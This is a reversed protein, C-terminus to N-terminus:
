KKKKGEKKRREAAREKDARERELYEFVQAKADTICHTVTESACTRAFESEADAIMQSLIRTPVYMGADQSRNHIYRILPMTPNSRAHVVRPDEQHTDFQQSLSELFMTFEQEGPIQQNPFTKTMALRLKNIGRGLSSTMRAEEGGLSLIHLMVLVQFQLGTLKMEQKAGDIDVMVTVAHNLFTHQMESDGNATDALPVDHAPTEDAPEQVAPEPTPAPAVEVERVVAFMKRKQQLQPYETILGVLPSQRLARIFATALTPSWEASTIEVFTNSLFKKRRTLESCVVRDGDSEEYLGGEVGLMEAIEQATHDPWLTELASIKATLRAKAGERSILHVDIANAHTMVSEKADDCLKWLNVLKGLITNCRDRIATQESEDKSGYEGIVVMIPRPKSTLEELDDTLTQIQHMPGGDANLTSTFVHSKAVLKSIAEVDPRAASSDEKMTDVLERMLQLHQVSEHADAFSPPEPVLTDEVHEGILAQGLRVTLIDELPVVPVPAQEVIPEEPAPPPEPTGPPVDVPAPSVVVPPPEVPVPTQDKPAEPALVPFKGLPINPNSSVFGVLRHNIYDAFQPHTGGEEMAQVFVRECTELIKILRSDKWCQEGGYVRASILALMQRPRELDLHTRTVVRNYADVLIAREAVTMVIRELLAEVDKKKELAVEAYGAAFIADKLEQMRTCQEEYTVANLIGLMAAHAMRLEAPFRTDTVTQGVELKSPEIELSTRAATKKDLSPRPPPVKDPLPPLVPAPVGVPQVTVVPAPAAPAPVPEQTPEFYERLFMTRQRIHGMWSPTGTKGSTRWIKLESVMVNMMNHLPHRFKKPTSPHLRALIAQLLRDFKSEGFPAFGVAQEMLEAEIIKVEVAAWVFASLNYPAEVKQIQLVNYLGDIIAEVTDRLDGYTKQALVDPIEALVLSMGIDWADTEPPADPVVTPAALKTPQLVPKPTNVLRPPSKAPITAKPIPRNGVKLGFATTQSFMLNAARKDTLQRVIGMPLDISGREQLIQMFDIIWPLRSLDIAAGHELDQTRMEKTVMAHLANRHKEDLLKRGLMQMRCAREILGYELLSWVIAEVEINSKEPYAGQRVATCTERFKGLMDALKIAGFILRARGQVITTAIRFQERDTEARLLDGLDVAVDLDSSQVPQEVSSEPAPPRPWLADLEMVRARILVRRDIRISKDNLQSNRLRIYERVIRDFSSKVFEGHENGRHLIGGIHDYAKQMQKSTLPLANHIAHDCFARLMEYELAAWVVLEVNIGQEGKDIVGKIIKWKMHDVALLCADFDKITINKQVESIARGIVEDWRQEEAGVNISDATVVRMADVSPSTISPESATKQEAQWLAIEGRVFEVARVKKGGYVHTNVEGVMRKCFDKNFSGQREHHRTCAEQIMAREKARTDNTIEPWDPITSPKVDTSAPVPVDVIAESVNPEGVAAAESVSVNASPAMEADILPPLQPATEVVPVDRQTSDDVVVNISGELIVADGESETVDINSQVIESREIGSLIGLVENEDVPADIRNNTVIWKFFAEDSDIEALQGELVDVIWTQVMPQVNAPIGILSTGTVADRIVAFVNSRNLPVAIANKAEGIRAHLNNGVATLATVFDKAVDGHVPVCDRRVVSLFDRFCAMVEAQFEAVIIEPQKDQEYETADWLAQSISTFSRDVSDGNSGSGTHGEKGNGDVRATEVSGLNQTEADPRFAEIPVAHRGREKRGAKVSKREAPTDRAFAVNVNKELTDLPISIAKQLDDLIHLRIESRADRLMRKVKRLVDESENQTLPDNLKKNLFDPVDVRVIQLTRELRRKVDTPLKRNLVFPMVNDVKVLIDQRYLELIRARTITPESPAEKVASEGAQALEQEKISGM